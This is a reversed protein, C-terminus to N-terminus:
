HLRSDDYSSGVDLVNYVYVFPLAIMIQFMQKVEEQIGCQRNYRCSCVCVCVSEM